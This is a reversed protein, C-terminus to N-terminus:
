IQPDKHVAYIELSSRRHCAKEMYNLVKVDYLQYIISPLSPVLINWKCIQNEVTREPM